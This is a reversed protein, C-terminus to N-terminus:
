KKTVADLSIEAEIHDGLAHIVSCSFGMGNQTLYWYVSGDKLGNLFSEEDCVMEGFEGFSEPWEGGNEAAITQKAQASFADYLAKDAVYGDEFKVPQKTAPNFNLTFFWDNPYAAGKRNFSGEVVVSVLDESAFSIRTDLDISYGSYERQKDAVDTQSRTVTITESSLDKIKSVMMNEILDAHESGDPLKISIINEATDQILYSYEAPKESVTPDTSVTPTESTTSNDSDAPKDPVVSDACGSLLFIVLLISFLKKM